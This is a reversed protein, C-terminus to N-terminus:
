LRMSVRLGLVLANRAAETGGPDVIYQVDPQISLAEGLPWDLTGELVIERRLASSAASAEPISALDVYAVGLGLRDRAGFAPAM